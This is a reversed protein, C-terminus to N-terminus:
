HRKHLDPDARDKVAGSDFDLDLVMLGVTRSEGPNDSLIPGKRIKGTRPLCIGQQSAFFERNRNPRM